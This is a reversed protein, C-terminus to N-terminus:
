LPRGFRSPYIAGPAPAPAFFSGTEDDQGVVRRRTSDLESASAVASHASLQPRITQPTSSSRPRDDDLCECLRFDLWEWHATDTLIYSLTDHVPELRRGEGHRLDAVLYRRTLSRPLQVSM